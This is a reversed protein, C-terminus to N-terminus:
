EGKEMLFEWRYIEDKAARADPADPYLELYINMNKIAKKYQKLQAYNLALAKYLAPFFPSDRLAKKYEEIAEEFKGGSTYTEARIVAKRAEETLAFLHPYRIMLEAIHARVEKAEKEDALKLYEAYEKIAEKYQGKGELDRAVQLKSDKYPKLANHLSAIYSQRFKSRTTLYDEPLEQYVRIANKIDGAKAYVTAELIRDFLSDKITSLIKLADDYAGKDILMLAKASKAWSDNPNLSYAQEADKLYEEKKGLERYAFARMAFATAKKHTTKMERPVTFELPNKAGKREITLKVATGEPGKVNQAVKNLDWGKTPQGNIELLKDGVKIGAKDAPGSKTIDVVVPYGDDGIEIRVGIDSTTTMEIVKTLLDSAELYSGAYLHAKSLLLLTEFNNRDVELAKRLINIAGEYNENEFYLEALKYHHPWWKPDLEIAKKFYNETEKYEKQEKYILGLVAYANSDKPSLEIARKAAAIAETYNKTLRSLNALAIYYFVNDLKQEEIYKKLKIRASEPNSLVEAVQNPIKKVADIIAKETANHISYDILQVKVAASGETDFFYLIINDYYIRTKLIVDVANKRISFIGEKPEYCKIDWTNIQIIISKNANSDFYPYVYLSVADKLYKGTHFKYTTEIVAFASEEFRSSTRIESEDIQIDARYPIKIAQVDKPPELPSRPEIHVTVPITCGALILFFLPMLIHPLRKVM